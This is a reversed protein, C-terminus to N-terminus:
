CGRRAAGGRRRGGGRRRRPAAADEVLPAVGLPAAPQRPGYFPLRLLCALGLSGFLLALLDLLPGSGARGWGNSETASAIPRLDMLSRVYPSPSPSASARSM